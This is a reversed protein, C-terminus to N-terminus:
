LVKVVDFHAAFRVPEYVGLVGTEPNVVAWWGRWLKTTDCSERGDLLQYSYKLRKVRGRQTFSYARGTLLGLASAVDEPRKIKLALLDHRGGSTRVLAVKEKM